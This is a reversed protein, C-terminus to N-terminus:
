VQWASLYHDVKTLFAFFLPDGHENESDHPANKSSQTIKLRHIVHAFFQATAIPAFTMLDISIARHMTM